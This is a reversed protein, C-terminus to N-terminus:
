LKTNGYHDGEAKCYIMSLSHPMTGLLDAWFYASEIRKMWSILFYRECCKGNRVGYAFNNGLLLCM